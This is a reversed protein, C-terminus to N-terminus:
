RRMPRARQLCKGVSPVLLEEGVAAATIAWLAVIFAAAGLPYLASSLRKLVKKKEATM